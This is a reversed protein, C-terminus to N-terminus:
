VRTPVVGGEVPTLGHLSQRMKGVVDRTTFDQETIQLTTDVVFTCCEGVRDYDGVIMCALVSWCVQTRGPNRIEKSIVLAIAVTSAM